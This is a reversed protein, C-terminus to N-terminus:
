TGVYVVVLEKHNVVGRTWLDAAFQQVLVQEQEGLKLGEDILILETNRPAAAAIIPKSVSGLDSVAYVHRGLWMQMERAMLSNSTMVVSPHKSALDLVADTKGSRRPVGLKVTRFESIWTIPALGVTNQVPVHKRIQKILANLLILTTNIM